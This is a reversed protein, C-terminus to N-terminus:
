LGFLALVGDGAASAATILERALPLRTPTHEPGLLAHHTLSLSEALARVDGQMRTQALAELVLSVPEGEYVAEAALRVALRCRLSRESEPLASLAARQLALVRQRAAANRHEHVWVGGLGLVARALQAPDGVREAAVTASEFGARAELLWGCALQAEAHEILLEVHDFGDPRHEALRVARALVTAAQEYDFGRRLSAAAARCAVIAANADDESRAAAALTHHAVREPHGSGALLTAARAHADMLESTTLQAIAAERVLDHFACKGPAPDVLGTRAAVSLAAAVVMPPESALAAIQGVAAETGLVAALALLRRTDPPLRALADVIAHQVTASGSGPWGQQLAHTLFLPNGGTVQLLAAAAAPEPETSGFAALMAATEHMTFRRLPMTTADRALEDLLAGGAAAGDRRALLLVLPLRDLAAAFFRTLLLAGEDANHADDIVVMTPVGARAASLREAVAAFRAFREPDIHDAGHDDALLRAGDLGILEALVAPWPWLAPVGGHPWCRGWVVEFGEREAIETARECFWTKGIGAEGSVVVVQRRGDRAKARLRAVVSLEHERGIFEEVM